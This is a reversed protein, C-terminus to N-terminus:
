GDFYDGERERFVDGSDRGSDFAGVLERGHREVHRERTCGFRELREEFFRELIKRLDREHDGISEQPPCQVGGSLELDRSEGEEAHVRVRRSEVVGDGYVLEKGFRSINFGIGFRNGYRIKWPDPNLLAVKDRNASFRIM